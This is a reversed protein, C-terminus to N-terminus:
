DRDRIRVVVVVGLRPSRFVVSFRKLDSVPLRHYRASQLAFQDISDLVMYLLAAAVHSLGVLLQNLRAFVLRFSSLYLSDDLITYTNLM